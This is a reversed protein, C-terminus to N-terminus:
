CYLTNIKLINYVTPNEGFKVEMKPANFALPSGSTVLFCLAIALTLLKTLKTM